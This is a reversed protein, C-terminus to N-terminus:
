PKFVMLALIALVAAASAYNAIMSFADDLLAHLESNAPQGEAALRAALKRAQKPRQGGIGGLLLAAAYIEPPNDRRRAAEFAVGALVIGAVFLFAGLIHFFLAIEIRSM